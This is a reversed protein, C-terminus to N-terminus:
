KNILIQSIWYKKDTPSAPLADIKKIIKKRYRLEIKRISSTHLSKYLYHDLRDDEM